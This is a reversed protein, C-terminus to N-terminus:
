CYGSNEELSFKALKAVNMVFEINKSSRPISFLKQDNRTGSNRTLELKTWKQLVNRNVYM